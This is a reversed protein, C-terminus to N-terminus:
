LFRELFNEMEKSSWDEEGPKSYVIRGSRDVLASYPLGEIPFLSLIESDVGKFMDFPPVGIKRKLFFNGEAPNDDMNVAIVSFGRGKLKDYIKYISPMERICPACWSAWFNVLVLKGKYERFFKKDGSTTVLQLGDSVIREENAANKQSFNDQGKYIYYFAAVGVLITVFLVLVMKRM